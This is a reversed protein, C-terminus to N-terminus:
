YVTIMKFQLYSQSKECLANLGFGVTGKVVYNCGYISVHVYIPVSSFSPTIEQRFSPYLLTLIAIICPTCGQGRDIGAWRGDTRTYWIRSWRINDCDMVVIIGPYFIASPACKDDCHNNSNIPQGVVQTSLYVSWEQGRTVKGSRLRWQSATCPYVVDTVVSSHICM